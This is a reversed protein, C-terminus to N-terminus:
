VLLLSTIVLICVSGPQHVLSGHCGAWPAFDTNADLLSQEVRTLSIDKRPKPEPKSPNEDNQCAALISLLSLAAITKKLM